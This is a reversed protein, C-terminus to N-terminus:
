KNDEVFRRIHDAVEKASAKPGPRLDDEDDSYWEGYSDYQGMESPTFLYETDHEDLGFITQTANCVSDWYNLHKGAEFFQLMCVFSYKFNYSRVEILRLGLERFEPITTAWGLACATTGCSLDPNGKWNKGVWENYDFRNPPLTDLLDALKLLRDFRIETNNM